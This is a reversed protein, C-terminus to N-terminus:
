QEEELSTEEGCDLRIPAHRRPGGAEAERVQGTGQAAQAGRRLQKQLEESWKTSEGHGRLDPVIVACGLTARLYDALGGVDTFDLRNCKPGLGHIIIVPISDPGKTGAFYTAKLELDDGTTLSVDEPKPPEPQDAADDAKKAAPEDAATARGSSIALLLAMLLATLIPLACSFIPRHALRSEPLRFSM